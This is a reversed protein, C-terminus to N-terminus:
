PAGKPPRGARERRIELLKEHRQDPPLKLLEQQRAQPLRALFQEDRLDRILAIRDGPPAEALRRQQEVSLSDFWRRYARLLGLYHKRTKPDSEHLDQDLKRIREQSQRSLAHFARLDRDLREAHKLDERWTKLLQRNHDEEASTGAGLLAITGLLLFLCWRASVVAEKRM